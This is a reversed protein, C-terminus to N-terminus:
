KYGENPFFQCLKPKYPLFTFVVKLIVARSGKTSKRACRSGFNHGLLWFNTVIDVRVFALRPHMIGMNYTAM